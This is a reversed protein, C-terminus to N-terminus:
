LLKWLSSVIRAITAAQRAVDDRSACRRLLGSRQARRPM